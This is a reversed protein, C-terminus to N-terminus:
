ADLMAEQDSGYDVLRAQGITGANPCEEQLHQPYQEPEIEDEDCFDCERTM